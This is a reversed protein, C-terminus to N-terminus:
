TVPQRRLSKRGNRAKRDASEGIEKMRDRVTRLLSPAPPQDKWNKSPRSKNKEVNRPHALSQPPNFKRTACGKVKQSPHPNEEEKKRGFPPKIWFINRYQRIPALRERHIGILSSLLPTSLVLLHGGWSRAAEVFAALLSPKTSAEGDRERHVANQPVSLARKKEYQLSRRNKLVISLSIRKTTGVAVSYVELLVVDKPPSGPLSWM